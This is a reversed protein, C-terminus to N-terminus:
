SDTEKDPLHFVLITLASLYAPSPKWRTEDHQVGRGFSVRASVSGDDGVEVKLNNRKAFERVADSTAASILLTEGQDPHRRQSLIPDRELLDAALTLARAFELADLKEDTTSM